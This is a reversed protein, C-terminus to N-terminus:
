DRKGGGFYLAEERGINEFYDVTFDRFTAVSRSLGHRSPTQLYITRLCPPNEIHLLHIGKGQVSRWSVSPLFAVGLGMSIMERVLSPNDSEFVIHPSFGAQYCASNALTRLVGGRRMMIFDENRTEILNISDRDALSHHSAPVALMVEEELLKQAGHPLESSTANICVDYEDLNRHQVIHFDVDPYKQRFDYVLKPILASAALVQLNLMGTVRGSNASIEQEAAEAENLINIAHSYFLKGEQNLVLGKKSRTFLKAGVETELRAISQSAASQTINIQEAAASLSDHQIVSVFLKLQDIDM